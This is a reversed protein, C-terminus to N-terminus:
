GRIGKVFQAAAYTGAVGIVAWVWAPVKKPLGAGGPSGAQTGAPNYVGSAPGRFTKEYWNRWDVMEREYSDLMSAVGGTGWGNVLSEPLSDPVQGFWRGYGKIWRKWNRWRPTDRALTGAAVQASLDDNLAHMAGHLRAARGKNYTANVLLPEDGALAYAM